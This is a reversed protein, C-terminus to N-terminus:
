TAVAELPWHKYEDIAARDALLKDIFEMFSAIVAADGVRVAKELEKRALAIGNDASVLDDPKALPPTQPLGPFDANRRALLEALRQLGGAIIREEGKALAVYEALRDKAGRIATKQAAIEADLKLLEPTTSMTSIRM